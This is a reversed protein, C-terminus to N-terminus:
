RMTGKRYIARTEGVKERKTARGLALMPHRLSQAARRAAASARKRQVFCIGHSSPVLV